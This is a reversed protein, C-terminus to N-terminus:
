YFHHSIFISSSLPPLEDEDDDEENRDGNGNRRMNKDGDGMFRLGHKDLRIVENLSPNIM